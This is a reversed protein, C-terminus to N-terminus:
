QVLTMSRQTKPDSKQAMSTMTRRPLDFISRKGLTKSINGVNREWAEWMLELFDPFDAKKGNVGVISSFLNNLVSRDPFSLKVVGELLNETDEYKLTGTRNEDMVLFLEHFSTVDEKSYDLKDMTKKLKSMYDIVPTDHVNGMLHIIDDIIFMEKPEAEILRRVHGM